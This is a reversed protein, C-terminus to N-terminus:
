IDEWKCEENLNYHITIRCENIRNEGYYLGTEIDFTDNFYITPEMIPHIKAFKYVKREFTSLFSTIINFFEM